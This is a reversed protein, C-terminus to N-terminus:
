RKFGREATVKASFDAEVGAAAREVGGIAGIVALHGDSDYERAVFFVNKCGDCEAAVVSSRQEGAAAACRESTLTAVGGDNEVKRLVHRVNEFDVGRAAHSADFRSDDEIRKTSGGLFVM